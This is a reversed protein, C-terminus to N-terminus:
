NIVYKIITYNLIKKWYVYMATCHISIPYFNHHFKGVENIPVSNPQRNDRFTNAFGQSSKTQKGTHNINAIIINYLSKILIFNITCVSFNNLTIISSCINMDNTLFPWCRITQCLEVALDELFM